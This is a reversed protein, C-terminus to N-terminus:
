GASKEQPYYFVGDHQTMKRPHVKGVICRNIKMIKKEWPFNGGERGAERGREERERETETDTKGDTEREHTNLFYIM